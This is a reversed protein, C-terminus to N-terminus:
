RRGAARGPRRLHRCGPRGRRIRGLRRAHVRCDLDGTALNFAIVHAGFVGQGNKTVKGQLSGTTERFTANPYIDSVGAVDDPRLTRGSIDGASFAIPFMVAGAALLRRSGARCSPKASRRTVSASSTAARTRRSRNCTTAAPREAQRRRGHRVVLQLVRGVRSDRGDDYRRSVRDGGADSGSRTPRSVGDHEDRRRRAARRETFGAFEFRISAGPVRKGPRCARRYPRASNTPASAPRSGRRERFVPHADDGMAGDAHPRQDDHGAEPVRERSRDGRVRADRALLARVIPRRLTMPWGRQVCLPACPLQSSSSRCRVGPSIAAFSKTPVRRRPRLSRRCSWDAHRERPRDHDPLRGSRPRARPRASPADAALFLVLEEGEAFVPAGPMVSRYRGM